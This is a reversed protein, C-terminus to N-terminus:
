VKKYMKGPYPEKAVWHPYLGPNPNFYTSSTIVKQGNIEEEKGLKGTEVNKIFDNTEFVVNRKLHVQFLKHDKNELLNIMNEVDVKENFTFDDEQHWIYDTNEPIMKWANKWTVSYGLNEPNLVLKDINYEKKLKELIESKRRLPYDDILIKYVNYRSLNVNKHFSELTPILYEYRSTTFFLVCINKAKVKKPVIAKEDTNFFWTQFLRGDQKTTGFYDMSRHNRSGRFLVLRNYRNAVLDVLDWKSM